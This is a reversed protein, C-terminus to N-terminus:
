RFVIAAPPPRKVFDNIEDFGDNVALLSLLVYFASRPLFTSFLVGFPQCASLSVVQRAERRLM